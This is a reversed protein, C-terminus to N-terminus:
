GDLFVLWERMRAVLDGPRLVQVDPLGPRFHRVNYTVLYRCHGRHAAVLLPLDKPVAAGHHRTVADPPPDPVVHLCRQALTQFVPLAAPLKAALNREVEVLVQTSVIAEVLTIEALRLVVLSAPHESGSAAGAFLVDADMFVRLM